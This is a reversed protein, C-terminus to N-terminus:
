RRAQRAHPPDAIPPAPVRHSPHAIPRSPRRFEIFQFIKAKSQRTSLSACSTATPCASTIPKTMSAIRFLDDRQMAVNAERDRYGFAKWYAIEGHRALLVVAGPIKRAAVDAQLAEDIRQLRDPHFGRPESNEKM